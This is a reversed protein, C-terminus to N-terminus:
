GKSYPMRFWGRSPYVVLELLFAAEKRSAAKKNAARRSCCAVGPIGGHKQMEVFGSYIGDREM